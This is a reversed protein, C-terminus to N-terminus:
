AEHCYGRLASPMPRVPGRAQPSARTFNTRLVGLIRGKGIVVFTRHVGLRRRLEGAAPGERGRRSLRLPRLRLGVRPGLRLAAGAVLAAPAGRRRAAAGSAGATSTSTTRAACRRGHGPPASPASRRSGASPCPQEILREHQRPALPRSEPGSTLVESCLAESRTPFIPVVRDLGTMALLGCVRGEPCVIALGVELALRRAAMALVGIGTSDIFRLESLDVLM